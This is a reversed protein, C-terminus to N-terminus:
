RTNFNNELLGSAQRRESGVQFLDSLPQSVPIGSLPSRWDPEVRCKEPLGVYRECPGDPV